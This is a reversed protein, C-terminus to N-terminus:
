DDCLAEIARSAELVETELYRYEEIRQTAEIRLDMVRKRAEDVRVKQTELRKCTLHFRGAQQRLDAAARLRIWRIYVNELRHNRKMEEIKRGLDDLFRQHARVVDSHIGLAGEYHSRVNTASLLASGHHQTVTLAHESLATVYRFQRLCGDALATRLRESLGVMNTHIQYQLRKRKTASIAKDAAIGARLLAKRLSNWNESLAYWKQVTACHKQVEPKLDNIQEQVRALLELSQTYTSSMITSTKSIAAKPSGLVGESEVPIHFICFIQQLKFLHHYGQWNEMVFVFTM